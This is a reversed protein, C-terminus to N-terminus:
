PPVCRKGRSTPLPIAICSNSAPSIILACSACRMPSTFSTTGAASNIARASAIAAFIMALPGSATCYVMSATFLPMSIGSASPSYRSATNNPMAQAVSSLFSPVVANRSFRCACKLPFYSQTTRQTVRHERHNFTKMLEDLMSARDRLPRDIMLQEGAYLVDFVLYAVPVERLLKDSVKKRGLRKQLASFPLARGSTMAEVRASSSARGRVTESELELESELENGALYSWAVIEGDLIVDQPLGALEDPLEPFSETIEDRTRSFFRVTDGSCHAQARIGDYKDEVWANQFYSLADDATEAPSALMFGIPHFLRMRAEALKNEAALRLTEGIDGLLMNARQVQKLNGNFAKAIAEEVLSEKLGIRLDGTMIKVVYKAELPSIESLL